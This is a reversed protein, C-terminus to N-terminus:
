VREYLFDDLANRLKVLGNLDAFLVAENDAERIRINFDDSRDTSEFFELLELADGEPDVHLTHITAM